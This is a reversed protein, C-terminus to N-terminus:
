KIKFLFHRPFLGHHKQYLFFHYYNKAGIILKLSPIRKSKNKLIQTQYKYKIPSRGGGM